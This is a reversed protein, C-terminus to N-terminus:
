RLSDENSAIKIINDSQVSIDTLFELDIVGQPEKALEGDFYYMFLHPVLCCFRKQWVGQENRKLMNGSKLAMTATTLASREPASQLFLLRLLIIVM